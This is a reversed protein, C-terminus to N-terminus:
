CDILTPGTFGDHANDHSNTPDWKLFIEYEGDGDVDGISADNATYFYEKGFPDVGLEPKDLPINIYGVPADAPLTYEGGATGQSPRVSYVAPKRDKYNDIFFTSEALPQKNLKKGDRFVDFTVDEPDSSLYRWSIAVKDDITRVAVVGRNLYERKLEQYNYNSQASIINPFINSVLLVGSSMLVKFIAALPKTRFIQKM